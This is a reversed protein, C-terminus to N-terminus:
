FHTHTCAGAVQQCEGLFVEVEQRLAQNAGNERSAAVLAMTKNAAAALATEATDSGNGTPAAEDLEPPPAATAEPASVNFTTQNQQPAVLLSEISQLLRLDTSLEYWKSGLLVLALLAFGLSVSKWAQFSSKNAQLKSSEFQILQEM